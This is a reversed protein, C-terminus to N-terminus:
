KAASVAADRIWQDAAAPKIPAGNDALLYLTRDPIRLEEVADMVQGRASRAEMERIRAARILEMTASQLSDDLQRSLQSAIVLFLGTGLSGLILLLTAAYWATLRLRLSRLTM